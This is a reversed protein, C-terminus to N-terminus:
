NGLRGGSAGGNGVSSFATKENGVLITPNELLREIPIMPHVIAFRGDALESNRTKAAFVRDVAGFPNSPDGTQNGPREQISTILDFPSPKRKITAEDFGQQRLRQIHSDRVITKAASPKRQIRQFTDLAFQLEKLLDEQNRFGSATHFIERRQTLFLMQVNQKGIGRTCQGSADTPAHGFSSGASPDGETNMYTSVFNDRLMRRVPASSFSVTRM